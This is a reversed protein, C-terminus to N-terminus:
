RSQGTHYPTLMMTMNVIDPVEAATAWTLDKHTDYMFRWCIPVDLCLSSLYGTISTNLISIYEAELWEVIIDQALEGKLQTNHSIDFVLIRRMGTVDKPVIGSLKNYELHMFRMKGLLGVEVPITGSIQNRDLELTHLKPYRNLYLPMEKILNRSASVSRLTGGNQYLNDPLATIENGSVEVEELRKMSALSPLRGFVRNKDVNPHNMFSQASTSLDLKMLATVRDLAAPVSGVLRNDSLELAIVHGHEDCTVGYWADWCPDGEGWNDRTRWQDGSMEKYFVNLAELQQKRTDEEQWEKTHSVNYQCGHPLEQEQSYYCSAQFSVRKRQNRHWTGDSYLLREDDMIGAGAAFLSPGAVAAIVTVVQALRVRCRCRHQRIVTRLEAPLDTPEM